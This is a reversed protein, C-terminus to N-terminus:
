LYKEECTCGCFRFFADLQANWFVWNHGGDAEAYDFEIPLASFFDRSQHCNDLTYPDERGIRLFLRPAKGSEALIRALNETADDSPDAGASGFIADKISFGRDDKQGIFTSISRHGSSLSGITAYNEPHRLGIRFAGYGGMSCGLLYNEERRASIPFFGRMIEPMECSLYTEFKQGHAMDAYSSLFANPMLVAVGYHRSLSEIISMRIWSSANQGYGHLLTLAPYVNHPSDPNVPQPILANVTTCMGLTKSFFRTEILAM